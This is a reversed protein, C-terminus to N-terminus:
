KDPKHILLADALLGLSVVNMVYKNTQVPPSYSFFGYIIGQLMKMDIGSLLFFIEMLIRSYPNRINAWFKGSKSEITLTDTGRDHAKTKSPIFGAVVCLIQKRNNNHECMKGDDPLLWLPTKPCLNEYIEPNRRFTAQAGDTVASAALPEYANTSSM